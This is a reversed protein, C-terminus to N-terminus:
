RPFSAVRDLVGLGEEPRLAREEPARLVLAPRLFFFLTASVIKHFRFSDIVGAKVWSSRRLYCYRGTLIMGPVHCPLVGERSLFM